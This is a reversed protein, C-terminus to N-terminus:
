AAKTSRNDNTMPLKRRKVGMGAGQEDFLAIFNSFPLDDGANATGAITRTWM